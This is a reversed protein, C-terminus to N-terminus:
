RRPGVPRVTVEEVMAEPGARVALLVAAAVSEPTLLEDVLYPMGEAKKLAVQMPTDVRGPHISSVRVRGREEARLADTLARLAFKSASYPGGGPGAVFGSGSNIAVVQGGAARLAPLLVRTLTAVAVVNLEFLDRWVRSPTDAVTGRAALGASHVLVDLRGIPACAATVADEDLLDVLFGQASPLGAVVADVKAASRGGVLVHHTPGLATCIARGIGQSGGTVLATPRRSDRAPDTMTGVSTRPVSM